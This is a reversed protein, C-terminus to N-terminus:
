GFFLSFITNRGKKKKPLRFM